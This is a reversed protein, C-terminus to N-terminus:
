SQKSHTRMIIITASFGLKGQKKLKKFINKGNKWIKVPYPQFVRGVASINVLFNSEFM